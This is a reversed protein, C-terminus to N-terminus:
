GAALTSSTTAYELHAQLSLRAVRLLAQPVDPYVLPLLAEVDAGPGAQEMAKLVKAHRRMRHAILARVNGHPDGVLRGHAPAIVAIDLALLRELSALYQALNGDPPAIVPTMGKLVHDGSFLMGSPELLYCVHNSAHGPTLLARLRADGLDICDGEGLVRDLAVGHDHASAHLAPRGCVEAGTARRVADVAPSHDIHTHTLLIWCLRGGAARLLADIHAPEDPGPDILALAETGVLYSNTGPGTMMGANPALVRRTWRDLTCAQGPKLECRASGTEDPDAWAIEDYAADAELHMRPEGDSSCGYRPRNVPVRALDRCHALAADVTAHRCLGELIFETPGRLKMAGQRARQLAEAATVWIAETAELGDSRAEQGPPAAAIFFHTDFRAPLGGPTIWRDFYLMDGAPVILAERALFSAFALERGRIARRDAQWAQLRGADPFRGAADRALLIGAEEYCERAAAFWCALAGGERKLRGNADVESLGALCDLSAPDGDSDDLVGGPFVHAGAFSRSADSRRLMLLEPATPGERLLVITASQRPSSAPM